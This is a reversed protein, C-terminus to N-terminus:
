NDHHEKPDLHGLLWIIPVFLKDLTWVFIWGSIYLTGVIGLVIVQAAYRRLRDTM